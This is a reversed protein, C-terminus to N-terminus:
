VLVVKGTVEVSQDGIYDNEIQKRDDEVDLKLLSFGNSLEDMVESLISLSLSIFVTLFLFLYFVPLLFKILSTWGEKISFDLFFFFFIRFRTRFNLLTSSSTNKYQKEQDKIERSDQNNSRSLIQNDKRNQPKISTGDFPLVVSQLKIFPLLAMLALYTHNWTLKFNLYVVLGLM